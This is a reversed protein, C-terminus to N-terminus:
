QHIYLLEFRIRESNVVYAQFPQNADSKVFGFPNRTSTGLYVDIHNGKIMSGTDAALFYGDHSVTEGDDNVYLTGVAAPIYVVSRYPIISPDVAISKMAVLKLGSGGTVAEESMGWRVKGTQDYGAYNKYKPCERCDYQRVASRGAYHALYNQGNKRIYVSGQIAATCWDNAELKLPLANENIDLLPIGTESHAFTPVYYYTAWLDLTKEGSSSSVTVVKCSFLVSVCFLWLWCRRM